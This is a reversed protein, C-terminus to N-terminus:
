ELYKLDVDDNDVDEPVSFAALKVEGDKSVFFSYTTLPDDEFIVKLYYPNLIILLVVSMEIITIPQM